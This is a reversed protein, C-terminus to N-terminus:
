ALRLPSTDASVGCRKGGEWCTRRVSKLTISVTPRNRGARTTSTLRPDRSTLGARATVVAAGAQSTGRRGGEPLGETHRAGDEDREEEAAGKVPRRAHAVREGEDRHGEEGERVPVRRRTLGRGIRPGKAGREGEGERVGAAAAATPMICPGSCTGGSALSSLPKRIASNRCAPM